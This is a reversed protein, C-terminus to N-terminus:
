KMSLWSITLEFYSHIVPDLCIDWIDIVMKEMMEEPDSDLHQPCELGTKVMFETVIIM